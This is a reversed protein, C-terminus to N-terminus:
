GSLVQSGYDPVNIGALYWCTSILQREFRFTFTSPTAATSATTATTATTTPAAFHFLFLAVTVIILLHPSFIVFPAAVAGPFIPMLPFFRFARWLLLLLLLICWLFDLLALLGFLRLSCTRLRLLSLHLLGENRGIALLLDNSIHHLEDLLKVIACQVEFAHLSADFHLKWGHLVDRQVTVPGPRCTSNSSLIALLKHLNGIGVKAKRCTVGVM